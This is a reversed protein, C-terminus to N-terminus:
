RILFPIEAVKILNFTDRSPNNATKHHSKRKLELIHEGTELSGLPLRCLLGKEGMNPHLFYRCTLSDLYPISDIYVEFIQVHATLQREEKQRSLYKEANGTVEILSDKLHKWEEATHKDPNKRKELALSTEADVFVKRKAIYLTDKEWHKIMLPHWLGTKYLKPVKNLKELVKDDEPMVRLFLWAQDNEQIYRDLTAAKIIRSEAPLDTHRYMFDKRLDEYLAWNIVLWDHTIEKFDNTQDAYRIPFYAYANYRLHPTILFVIAFYPLSLWLLRRSYRHDIFNYLLPRYLFSLTVFSFALYIFFYIRSITKDKIRKIGGLTIFDIMYIFGMVGYSFMFIVLWMTSDTNNDLYERFPYIIIIPMLVTMLLSIFIFFLLFTYAFIVSCARELQEIFSDFRGVKRSLYKEFIEAYHLEKYDIDGSVYRLGIAGIWLGRMAIHILLNIIFIAWAGWALVQLFDLITGIFDGGPNLAVFSDLKDLKSRTEWVLYLALGSILLELQWSEQQLKELWENFFSKPATVSSGGEKKPDQQQHEKGHEPYDSM